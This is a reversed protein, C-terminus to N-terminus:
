LLYSFCKLKKFYLVGKKMYYLKRTKTLKFEREEWSSNENKKHLQGRKITLMDLYDTEDYTEDVFSLRSSSSTSIRSFLMSM